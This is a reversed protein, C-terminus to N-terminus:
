ISKQIAIYQILPIGKIMARAPTDCICFGFKVTIRKLNIILGDSILSKMEAIFPELYERCPPKSVGCWIGAVFPEIM